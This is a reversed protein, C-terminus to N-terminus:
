FNAIREGLIGSYDRMLDLQIELRYADRAPSEAGQM